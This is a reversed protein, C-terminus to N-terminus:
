PLYGARELVLRLGEIQLQSMPRKTDFAMARAALHVEVPVRVTIKVSEGRVVSGVVPDAAVPDGVVPNMTEAFTRPKRDYASASM